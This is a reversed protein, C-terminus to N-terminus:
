SEPVMLGAYSPPGGLDLNQNPRRAYQAIHPGLTCMTQVYMLYGGLGRNYADIKQCEM